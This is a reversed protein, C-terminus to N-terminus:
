FLNDAIKSFEPIYIQWKDRLRIQKKGSIEWISLIDKQSHMLFSASNMLIQNWTSGTQEKLKFCEWSKRSVKPIELTM